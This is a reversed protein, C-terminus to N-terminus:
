QNAGLTKQLEDAISGYTVAGDAREPTIQPGNQDGGERRRGGRNQPGQAEIRAPEDPAPTGATLQRPAKLAERLAARTEAGDRQLQEIVGRLFAIESADREVTARLLEAESNAGMPERNATPECGDTRLERRTKREFNALPAFRNATRPERNAGALECNAGALERGDIQWVAGAGAGAGIKRAGIRGLTARKQMARKSIGAATAAQAVSLWVAGTEPSEPTTKLDDPM